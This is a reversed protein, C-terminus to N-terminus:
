TYLSTKNKPTSVTRPKAKRRHRAPKSCFRQPPEHRTRPTSSTAASGSKADGDVGERERGDRVRVDPGHFVLGIDEAQVRSALGVALSQDGQFQAVIALEVRPNYLLEYEEIVRAASRADVRRHPPLRLVQPRDSLSRAGTLTSGIRRRKERRKM